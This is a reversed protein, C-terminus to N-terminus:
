AIPATISDTADAGFAMKSLKGPTVVRPRGLEALMAMHEPGSVRQLNAEVIPGGLMPAPVFGYIEDPKLLGLRRRARSFMRGRDDSMDMTKPTIYFIIGRAVSNAGRKLIDKAEDNFGTTIWGMPIDISFARGTKEGWVVVEGFAGVAIVHYTDKDEFETGELWM